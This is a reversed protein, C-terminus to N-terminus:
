GKHTEEILRDLAADLVNRLYEASNLGKARARDRALRLKEKTKEPIRITLHDNCKEIVPIPIEQIM